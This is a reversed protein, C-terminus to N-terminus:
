TTARPAASGSSTRPPRRSGPANYVILNGRERRLFFRVQLSPAFSLSEPATAYLGEVPSRMRVIQETPSM